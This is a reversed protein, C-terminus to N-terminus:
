QSASDFKVAIVSDGDRVFGQGLTIIDASKGLGSLWVGDQEAKVLQIPVFKVREDLLIKVGLDGSENLALMAPSVKIAQQTDLDLSVEASVGAPINQELNDIAIEIPFTNTSSSATRALYRLEGEILQGDSFRIRAHQGLMLSQVHRESVDAEIVLISLSIV